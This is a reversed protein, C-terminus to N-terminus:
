RGGVETYNSNFYGTHRELEEQHSIREFGVSMSLLYKMRKRQEISLSLSLSIPHTSTM